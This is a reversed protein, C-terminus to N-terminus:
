APAAVRIPSFPQSPSIPSVRNTLGDALLKATTIYGQHPRQSYKDSHDTEPKDNDRENKMSM